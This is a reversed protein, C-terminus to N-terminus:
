WRDKKSLKADNPVDAKDKYLMWINHALNVIAEDFTAGGTDCRPDHSSTGNEPFYNDNPAPHEMYPGWEVWVQTLTNRKKDPPNKGKKNKKWNPNKKSEIRKTIPDVKAYHWWLNEHFWGEPHGWALRQNAPHMCLFWEANYPDRPDALYRKLAKEWGIWYYRHLAAANLERDGEDPFIEVSWNESGEIKTLKMRGIKKTEAM